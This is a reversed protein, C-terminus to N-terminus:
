TTSLFSCVKGGERRLLEQRVSSIIAAAVREVGDLELDDSPIPGGDLIARVDAVATTSNHRFRSLEARFNVKAAM